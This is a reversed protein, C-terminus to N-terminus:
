TSWVMWWHIRRLHWYCVMTSISILL